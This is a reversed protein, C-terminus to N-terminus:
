FGFRLAGATEFAAGNRVTVLNTRGEFRMIGGRMESGSGTKSRRLLSVVSAPTSVLM